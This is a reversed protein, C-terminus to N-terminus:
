PNNTWWDQFETEFNTRSQMKVNQTFKTRLNMYTGETQYQGHLNYIDDVHNQGVMWLGTKGSTAAAIWMADSRAYRSDIADRESDRGTIAEYKQNLQEYGPKIFLMKRNVLSQWADIDSHDIDWSDKLGQAWRKLKVLAALMPAQEGQHPFKNANNLDNSLRRCYNIMGKVDNINYNTELDVIHRKFRDIRYGIILNDPDGRKEDTSGHTFAKERWYSGGGEDIGYGEEATRRVTTKSHSEGVLNLKGSDLPARQVLGEQGRGRATQSAREVVANEQGGEAGVQQAVQTLQHSKSMGKGMALAKAGMVDAEIELGVDDNINVKGKMQMTPKVTGQKQQVVHWAEHPLHKEQGPGLHIDTGQAYAHAQLQEPKKSNRHVNVDDLSMGSLNEMGTKLNDPLGTKYEKKQVPEQKLQLEEDKEISQKQFPSAYHSHAMALFQAAHKTQSNKNAMEQIARLQRVQSGNNEMEQLKRQGIAEPRNDVFGFAQKTNSKKQGPSNVVSRHKIGKAREIKSYM